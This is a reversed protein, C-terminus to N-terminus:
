ANVPTKLLPTVLWQCCPICFTDTHQSWEIHEIIGIPVRSQSKLVPDTPILLGQTFSLATASGPNGMPPRPGGIRTSKPSFTHLFSLIQDWLPHCAGPMDGRSGGIDLVTNQVTENYSKNYDVKCCERNSYM